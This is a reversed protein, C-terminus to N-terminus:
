AVKRRRLGYKSDSVQVWGDPAYFIRRGNEQATVAELHAPNICRRNCCLHDIVLGDPILSDHALMWAVRHVLLRRSRYRVHGYGRHMVGRWEVCGWKGRNVCSFFRARTMEDRLDQMDLPAPMRGDYGADTKVGSQCAM